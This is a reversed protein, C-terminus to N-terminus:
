IATVSWDTSKIERNLYLLIVNCWNALIMDTIYIPFSQSCYYNNIEM